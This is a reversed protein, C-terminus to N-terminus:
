RPTQRSLADRLDQVERRLQLERLVAEAQSKGAEEAIEDARLKEEVLAQLRGKNEALLAQVRAESNMARVTLWTAGGLLVSAIAASQFVGRLFAARQRQQETVPLHVKVWAADFVTSYIRNRLILSGNRDRVIGALRLTDVSDGDARTPVKGRLVESYTNLVEAVPTDGALLRREVFSLNPETERSTDTLFLRQVIRDIDGHTTQGIQIAAAERCLRQTLYPHGSTWWLIRELLYSGNEGLGSALPAAEPATFDSPVIRRGVNFPTGLPNRILSEPTASGTLCISLRAGSQRRESAQHCARIGAFFEDTPFPLSRVADIEDILLVLPRPDTRTWHDLLDFFAKAPGVRANFVADEADDEHDVAAGAQAALGAYWQQPTVNWGLATLDLSAVRAGTNRLRFAARAMLSSKGVQRTDLLHCVGGQTLADWLDHDAQREVYCPADPPVNGGTVFFDPRGPM